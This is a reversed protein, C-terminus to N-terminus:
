VVIMKRGRTWINCIQYWIFKYHLLSMNFLWKFSFKVNGEHIETQTGNWNPVESDTKLCLPNKTYINKKLFFFSQLWLLLFPFGNWTGLVFHFCKKSHALLPKNFAGKSLKSKPFNKTQHLWVQKGRHFNM